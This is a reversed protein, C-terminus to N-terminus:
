ISQFFQNLGIISQAIFNFLDEYKEHQKQSVFLTLDEDVNYKNFFYDGIRNDQKTEFVIQNDNVNCIINFKIPLKLFLDVSYSDDVVTGIVPSTSVSTATTATTATATTSLLTTMEYFGLTSLLYKM